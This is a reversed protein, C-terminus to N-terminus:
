RPSAWEHHCTMMQTLNLLFYHLITSHHTDRANRLEQPLNHWRRSMWGERTKQISVGM